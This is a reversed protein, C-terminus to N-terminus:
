RSWDWFGQRAFSGDRASVPGVRGGRNNTDVRGVWPDARDERWPYDNGPENRHRNQSRATKQPKKPPAGSFAQDQMGNESSPPTAATANGQTSGQLEEATGDPSNALEGGSTAATRGLPLRAVEPGDTGARVRLRRPRDAFSKAASTRDDASATDGKTAENAAKLSHSPKRGGELGNYSQAAASTAEGNSPPVAIATNATVVSAVTPSDANRDGAGLALVGIAGGIAGFLISVFAIRLERRLRPTPCFFGFEPHAYQHNRESRIGEM